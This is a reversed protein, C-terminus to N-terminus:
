SGSQSSTVIAELRKRFDELAGILDSMVTNRGLKFLDVADEPEQLEKLLVRGKHIFCGLEHALSFLSVHLYDWKEGFTLRRERLPVIERHGAGSSRNLAAVGVTRRRIARNTKRKTKM